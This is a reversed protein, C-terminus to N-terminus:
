SWEGLGDRRVRCQRSELKDCLISSFTDELLVVQKTRFCSNRKQTKLTLDDYCGAAVLIYLSYREESHIIIAVGTFM